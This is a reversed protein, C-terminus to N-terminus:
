ETLSNKNGNEFKKNAIYLGGTTLIGWLLLELRGLNEVVINFVQLYYDSIFMVVFLTFIAKRMDPKINEGHGRNYLQKLFDMM